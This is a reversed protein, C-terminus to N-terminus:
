KDSSKRSFMNKLFGGIAAFFGLVAIGIIKFMGAGGKVAAAAAGGVVLAGLGYAAVKDGDRFQEYRQGNAFSFNRLMNHFAAVNETLSEPDSILTAKMVGERGLIRSSYNVTIRNDVENRLKTGWELRKTQVDYHPPIIWGELRLPDLGRKKRDEMGARNGEKLTELLADPDIKEDDKVYGSPDFRFTAFWRYDEYSVLYTSTTPPNGNLELFTSTDREGLAKTQPTIQVSAWPGISFSGNRVWPLADAQEWFSQSSAPTAALIIGFLAIATPLSKRM